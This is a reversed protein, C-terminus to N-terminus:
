EIQELEETLDHLLDETSVIWADKDTPFVMFRFNKENMIDECHKCFEHIEMEVPTDKKSFAEAFEKSSWVLLHIYGDVDITTFGDENALLWISECDATYTIFHKYRKEATANWLSEFRKDSKM